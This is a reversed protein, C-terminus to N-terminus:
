FYMILPFCPFSPLPYPPLPSLFVYNRGSINWLFSCLIGLPYGHELSFIKLKQVKQGYINEKDVQTNQFILDYKKVKQVLQFEVGLRLM